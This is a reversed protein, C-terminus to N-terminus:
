KKDNINSVATKCSDFKMAKISEDMDVIKISLSEKKRKTAEL